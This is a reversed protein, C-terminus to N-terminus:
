DQRKKRKKKKKKKGKDDQKADDDAGLEAKVKEYDAKALAYAAAAESLRQNAEQM